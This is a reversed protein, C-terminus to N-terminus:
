LAYVRIINGLCCMTRSLLSHLTFTWANLDQRWTSTLKVNPQWLRLLFHWWIVTTYVPLYPNNFIVSADHVINQGGDGPDSMLGQHSLSPRQVKLLKLGTSIPSLRPINQWNWSKSPTAPLSSFNETLTALKRSSHFRSNKSSPLLLELWGVM